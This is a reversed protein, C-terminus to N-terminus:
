LLAFRLVFLMVVNAAATIATLRYNEAFYFLIGVLALIATALAGIVFPEVNVISFKEVAFHKLRFYEGLCRILAAFQVSIGIRAWLQLRTRM